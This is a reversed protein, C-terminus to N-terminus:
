LGLYKEKMKSYQGCTLKGEPCKGQIICNPAVDSFLVPEKDRLKLTLTEFLSQIEWQANNCLRESAIEKFARANVNSLVSMQTGNLLAFNSVDPQEELLIERLSRSKYVSDMFVDLAEQNKLIAPPIIIKRDLPIEKFDERVNEDLRHREFQHYTVLSMSMGLLFKAHEIVSEHGYGMVRQAVKEIKKKSKDLGYEDIWNQLIQSPDYENTSTLAGLGARFFGDKFVEIFPRDLAVELRQKSFESIVLHDKKGIKSRLSNYFNSPLVEKLSEYIQFAEPGNSLSSFFNSLKNASMTVFINSTSGLSLAYRNDEIPAFIYDSKKPRGKTEVGDKLQSLFRYNQLLSHMTNTYITKVKDSSFEPVVFSNDNMQVYRMSQQTYTDESECIEHTTARSVGSIAFSVNFPKYIEEITEQSYSSIDPLKDVQILNVQAM